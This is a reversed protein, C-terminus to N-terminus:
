PPSMERLLLQQFFLLGALFAHLLHATDFDRLLGEQGNQLNFVFLFGRM